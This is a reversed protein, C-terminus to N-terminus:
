VNDDYEGERSEEADIVTQNIITQKSGRISSVFDEIIRGYMVIQKSKEIFDFIKNTILDVSSKLQFLKNEFDESYRELVFVREELETFAKSDPVAVFEIQEKKEEDM